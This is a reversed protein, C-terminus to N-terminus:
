QRGWPNLPSTGWGFPGSIRRASGYKPRSPKMWEVPRRSKRVSVSTPQAGKTGRGVSQSAGLSTAGEPHMTPSECRRLRQSRRGPRPCRGGPQAAPHRNPCEAPSIFATGLGRVTPRAGDLARDDGPEPYRGGLGTPRVGTGAFALVPSCRYAAPTGVRLHCPLAGASLTRCSRLGKYRIQTIGAFPTLRM